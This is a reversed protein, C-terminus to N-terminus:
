SIQDNVVGEWIIQKREWEGWCILNGPHCFEGRFCCGWTGHAPITMGGAWGPGSVRGDAATQGPGRWGREGCGRPDEGRKMKSIDWRAGRGSWGDGGRM